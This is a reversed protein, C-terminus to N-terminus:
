VNNIYVFTAHIHIHRAQIAAGRAPLTDDNRAMSASKLSDVNDGSPAVTVIFYERWVYKRPIGSRCPKPYLQFIEQKREQFLTCNDHHIIRTEVSFLFNFGEDSEVAARYSPKWFVRWVEIRYFFAPSIQFVPKAEM